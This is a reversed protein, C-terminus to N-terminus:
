PQQAPQQPAQEGTIPPLNLAGGQQRVEREIASGTVTGPGQMMSLILSLLLFVAGLAATLKTFFTPAGRVGLFTEVGSGGLAGALGGGRPEQLLIVVVLLVVVILYIILLLIKLM